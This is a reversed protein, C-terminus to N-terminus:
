GLNYVFIFFFELGLEFSKQYEVFFMKKCIQTLFIFINYIQGM